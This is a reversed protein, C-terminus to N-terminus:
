LNTQNTPQSTKAAVSAWANLGKTLIAPQIFRFDSYLPNSILRVSRFFMESMAIRKIKKNLILNGTKRKVITQLKSWIVNLESTRTQPSIVLFILNHLEAFPFTGPVSSSCVGCSPVLVGKFICHFVRSGTPSPAWLASFDKIHNNTHDFLQPSTRFDPNSVELATVRDMTQIGWLEM